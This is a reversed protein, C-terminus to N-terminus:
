SLGGFHPQQVVACGSSSQRLLYLSAAPPTALPMEIVGGSASDDKLGRLELECIVQSVRMKAEAILKPSLAKVSSSVSEFFLDVHNKEKPPPPQTSQNSGMLERFSEMLENKDQHIQMLLKLGEQNSPSTCKTHNTTTSSETGLTAAEPPLNGSHSEENPKYSTETESLIEQKPVSSTTITPFAGVDTAIVHVTTTSAKNVDSKASSPQPPRKQFYKSREQRVTLEKRIAGEGKTLLSELNRKHKSTREHRVLHCRNCDLRCHCARCFPKNPDDESRRLWPEFINLWKDCFRQNYKPKTGLKKEIDQRATQKINRAERVKAEKWESDSTNESFSM